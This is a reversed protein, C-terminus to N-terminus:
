VQHFEKCEDNTSSSLICNFTYDGVNSVIKILSCFNYLVFLINPILCYLPVDNQKQGSKRLEAPNVMSPTHSAVSSFLFKIKFLFFSGSKFDNCDGSAQLHQPEFLNPAMALLSCSRGSPCTNKESNCYSPRQM